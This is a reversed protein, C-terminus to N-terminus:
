KNIKIIESNKYIYKQKQRKINSIFQILNVNHTVPRKLWLTTKPLTTPIRKRKQM